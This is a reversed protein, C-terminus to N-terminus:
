ERSYGELQAGPHQLVAAAARAAADLAQPVPAGLLRAALYAGTHADGAGTSDVVAISPAAAGFRSPGVAVASGRPGYTLVVEGYSAALRDLQREPDADSALVAAEDENAFLYTCGATWELFAAAGVERLPGASSPDVSTSCGHRRALDLAALGAARTTADLLTYGSLHCHSFDSWPLEALFAPDLGLNAGRDTLMSRQGDREVIAVVVGSAGRLQQLYPEVGRAELETKALRGPLDDGVAAVLAVTAGAAALAVAQNTAAGGPHVSIAARTDSRDHHPGDIRVVVDTNCDGIVVVRTTV